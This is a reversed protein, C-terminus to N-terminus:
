ASCAPSPDDRHRGHDHPRLGIEVAPMSSTTSRATRSAPRATACTTGTPRQVSAVTITGGAFWPRHLQALAERARDPLRHRDPLRVDQLLLAARLGAHWAAWTSGTPRCSPPPTSCSTGAASTRRTSGTSRTSCAPSTPSPRSPSCTPAGPRDRRRAGRTLADADVRLDPASLPLTPSADRGRRPRVRPHRQGLQPQRLDASLQERARLSVGRRGAQARRQRQRHLDVTYEDPSANVYRLSRERAADVLQTVRALDPQDSHPNGFVAEALLTSIRACSRNPTCAAAPTTSTPRASLTWAVMIALACRKWVTGISISPAHRSRHRCQPPRGGTRPGSSWPPPMMPARWPRTLLGSRGARSVSPGRRGACTVEQGRRRIQSPRGHAVRVHAWRSM